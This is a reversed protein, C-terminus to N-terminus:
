PRDTISFEMWEIGQVTFDAGANTAAIGVFEHRANGDPSMLSWPTAFKWACELTTLLAHEPTASKLTSVLRLDALEPFKWYREYSDIELPLHSRAGLRDVVREAKRRDAAHAFCHWRITEFM